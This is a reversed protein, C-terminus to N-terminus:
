ICRFKRELGCFKSITPWVTLGSTDYRLHALATSQLASCNNSCDLRNRHLCLSGPSGPGQWGRDSSIILFIWNNQSLEQSQKIFIMLSCRLQMDSVKVKHGAQRRWSWVSVDSMTKLRLSPLSSPQVCATQVCYLVPWVPCVTVGLPRGAASSYSEITTLILSALALRWESLAWIPGM